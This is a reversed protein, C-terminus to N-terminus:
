YRILQADAAYNFDACFFDILLAMLSKLRGGVLKLLLGFLNAPEFKSETNRVFNILVDLLILLM